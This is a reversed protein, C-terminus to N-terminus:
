RTVEPGAGLLAELVRDNELARSRLAAARQRLAQVAGSRDWLLANLAQEAQEARFSELTGADPMGLEALCARVKPDYVIGLMPVGACAAFILSHLRTSLVAEMCALMSVMGQPDYPATVAFCPQTMRERIQQFVLRDQPEQMVLFVVTFRAAARDCFRAFEGLDANVGRALRVSLGLLPKEDPVGQAALLQRGREATGGAAAYVPDATVLLPKTVGMRRLEEASREDRLTICAALEAARRVRARNKANRVPGIGNAYFMVPKGYHKALRILGTYYCLSRTSTSDQLLSGGGSLLASCRRLERCVAFPDFRWVAQIGCKQRTEGPRHSLAVLSAGPRVAQVREKLSLLIADDGLNRYGYYGSIVVRCHAGLVERYVQECVETMHAVSYYRLVVERGYRGLAQREAANKQCLLDYLAAYLAEETVPPCGRCCLNSEQALALREPTFLGIYGEEGALITPKEVAMAELAARSVGVFADGAALLAPIDTRAGTLQVLPEGAAANVAAAQAQLEELTDGAGVLVVRLGPLSVRLRPAIAILQRAVRSTLAGLRSVHVITPGDLGLEARVAGTPAAPAFRHTDIGNVTIAIQEPPVGYNQMLYTKIDESVSITREGWNTLIRLLGTVKFVFHASTVFPFGLEKQLLGCLFAPIRAHAHVLDPKEARILARLARYSRYMSKVGRRNLPAHFCRIGAATLSAEYVGGDSIVLVEWGRRQLELSLEVIHTEAGGIELGMTAMLIKM